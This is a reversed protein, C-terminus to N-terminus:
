KGVKPNSSPNPQNNPFILNTASISWNITAFTSDLSSSAYVSHVVPNVLKVGLVMHDVDPVDQNVVNVTIVEGVNPSKVVEGNSKVIQTNDRTIVLDARYGNPNGAKDVIAKAKLYAFEWKGQSVILQLGLNELAAHNIM